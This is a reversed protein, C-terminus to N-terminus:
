ILMNLKQLMLNMNTELIVVKETLEENEILLEDYESITDEASVVSITMILLLVTLLTLMLRKNM